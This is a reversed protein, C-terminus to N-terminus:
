FALHRASHTIDFGEEWCVVNTNHIYIIDSNLWTLEIKFSNVSDASVVDNNQYSIGTMGLGKASLVQGFM